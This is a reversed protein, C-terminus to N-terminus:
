KSKYFDEKNEIELVTLKRNALNTETATIITEYNKKVSNRNGLNKDYNM